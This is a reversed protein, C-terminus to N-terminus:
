KWGKSMKNMLARTGGKAGSPKGGRSPDSPMKNERMPNDYASPSRTAGMTRSARKTTGGGSPTTFHSRSTPDGQYAQKNQDFAGGRDRYPHHMSIGSTFRGIDNHSSIATTAAKTGLKTTDATRNNATSSGSPTLHAYTRSARSAVGENVGRTGGFDGPTKQRLSM